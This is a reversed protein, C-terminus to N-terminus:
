GITVMADLAQLVGRADPFRAEPRPALARLLLQDLSAPVNVLESPPTPLVPIAGSRPPERGTLLHYLTAGLSYIDGAVDLHNEPARYADPPVVIRFLPGLGLDALKVTGTIVFVNSPRVSGHVLGQGHIHALALALGRGLAHCRKFSLRQGARLYDALNRSKVLESAVGYNGDQEELAVLKVLNPHSLKQAAPLDALLGRLGPAALAEPGLVRLAVQRGEADSARYVVGLPGRGIVEGTVYRPGGATGGAPESASDSPPEVPPASPAAPAPPPRVDAAPTGLRRVREAVDRYSFDVSLLKQYVDHAAAEDGLSEQAVALWYYLGLNTVAPPHDALLLQAREVALRPMDQAIFLELLLETAEAHEHGEPAVRQLLAIAKKTDGAKAAAQGARLPQGAREYLAAARELAGAQELLEAAQGPQGGKEFATAAREPLEAALFARGAESFAEASEYAAAAEAFQGLSEYLEAARFGDHGTVFHGAAEAPQDNRLALEGRTLAARVTEGAQEWAEAAQALADCRTYLDAAETFRKLSMAVGAAAELHGVRVLLQLAKEPKGADTHLRSAKLAVQREKDDLTRGGATSESLHMEYAAAARAPEGAREFAEAARLTVGSLSYLDAARRWEGAQAFLRAADLTKGLQLSKEAAKLAANGAAPAPGRRSGLRREAEAAEAHRGLHRLLNAALRFEGGQLYAEAAESQLDNQELLRGAARHQGQQQLRRAEAQAAERADSLGLLRRIKM